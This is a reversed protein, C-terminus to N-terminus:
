RPSCKLACIQLGGSQCTKDMECQYYIARAATPTVTPTLTPTISSTAAVCEPYGTDNEIISFGIGEVWPNGEPTYCGGNSADITNIDLQGINCAKTSLSYKKTEGVGVTDNYRKAYTDCRYGETPKTGKYPCYNEQIWIAVPTDKKNTVYLGDSEYKKSLGGVPACILKGATVGSSATPAPTLLPSPSPTQACSTYLPLIKTKIWYQEVADFQNSGCNVTSMISDPTGDNPYACTRASSSYLNKSSCGPFANASNGSRTTKWFDEGDPNTTCNSKPAGNKVANEIKTQDSDDPYIYRDYLYGIAHGGLEHVAVKVPNLRTQVLTINGGLGNAAGAIGDTSPASNSLIVIKLHDSDQPLDPYSAYALSLLKKQTDERTICEPTLAGSASCGLQDSNGISKFSFINKATTYPEAALLATKIEEVKAHFPSFNNYGESIFLLTLLPCVEEAAYVQPVSFFATDTPPVFELIKEDQKTVIINVANDFYPVVVVTEIASSGQQSVAKVESLDSQQYLIMQAIHISTQYLIKNGEGYVSLKYPSPSSRLPFAVGNDINANKLLVQQKNEDYIFTLKWVKDEPSSIVPTTAPQVKREQKLTLFFLILPVLFIVAILIGLSLRKKYANVKQLFLRLTSLM